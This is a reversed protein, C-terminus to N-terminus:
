LSGKNKRNALMEKVSLKSQIQNRKLNQQKVIESPRLSPPPVLTDFGELLNLERLVSIFTSLSCTGKQIRAYTPRSIGLNEVLEEQSLGKSQRYYELRNYLEQTIALDSMAMSIKM